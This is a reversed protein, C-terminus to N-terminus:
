SDSLASGGTKVVISANSRMAAADRLQPQASLLPPLHRSVEEISFVGSVITATMACSPREPM